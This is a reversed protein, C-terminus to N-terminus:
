RRRGGAGIGALSLRQEGTGLISNVQQRLGARALDSRTTGKVLAALKADEWLPDEVFVKRQRQRSEKKASGNDDANGTSM